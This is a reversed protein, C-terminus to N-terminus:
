KKLSTLSDLVRKGEHISAFMRDSVKQISQKQELLYYNEKSKDEPVKFEAMWSMMNEDANDLDIIIRLIQDRNQTNELLKLDRKIAHITSMEPMVKDHLAMVDEYLQSKKEVQEISKEKCSFFIFGCFVIFLYKM